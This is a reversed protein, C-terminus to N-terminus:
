ECGKSECERKMRVADTLCELVTQGHARTEDWETWDGVVDIANNWSDPEPNDCCITVSSGEEARLVDIADVVKRAEVLWAMLESLDPAYGHPHDPRPHAEVYLDGADRCAKWWSDFSANHEAAENKLEAIRAQQLIVLESLDAWSMSGGPSCPTRLFESVLENLRKQDM